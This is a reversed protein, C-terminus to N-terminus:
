SGHRICGLTKRLNDFFGAQQTKQKKQSPAFMGNVSVKPLPNNENVEKITAPRETAPLTPSKTDSAKEVISSPTNSASPNLSRTTSPQDSRHTVIISDDEEPQDRMKGNSETTGNIKQQREEHYDVENFNSPYLQQRPTSREQVKKEFEGAKSARHLVGDIVYQNHHEDYAVGEGGRILKRVEEGADCIDTLKGPIIHTVGSNKYVLAGRFDGHTKTQCHVVGIAKVFKFREKFEKWFKDMEKVCYIQMNKVCRLNKMAALKMNAMKATDYAGSCTWDGHTMIYHRAKVKGDKVLENSPLLSPGKGNMVTFSFPKPHNAAEMDKYELAMRAKYVVQIDFPLPDSPLFSQFGTANIVQDFCEEIKVEPYGDCSKGEILFKGDKKTINTVRYYSVIKVGANELRSRFEDRSKDGGTITPELMNAATELNTYGWKKPDIIEKLGFEACISKFDNATIDPLKGTEFGYISYENEVLLTPYKKKFKGYAIHCNERMFQSYLYHPGFNPRRAFEYSTRSFIDKKDFLTVSHQEESLVIAGECGYCGAGIIAINM